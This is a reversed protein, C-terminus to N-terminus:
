GLVSKSDQPAQSCPLAECSLSREDSALKRLIAVVPVVLVVAQCSRASPFQGGRFLWNAQLTGKKTM